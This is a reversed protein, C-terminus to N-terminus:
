EAASDPDNLLMFYDIDSRLSTVDEASAYIADAQEKDIM